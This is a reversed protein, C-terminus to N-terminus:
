QHASSSPRLPQLSFCRINLFDCFQSVVSFIRYLCFSFSSITCISIVIHVIVLPFTMSFMTAAVVALHACVMPTLLLSTDPFPSGTLNAIMLQTVSDFTFLGTCWSLPIIFDQTLRPAILATTVQIAFSILAPMFDSCVLRFSDAITMKNTTRLHHLISLFNAGLAHITPPLSMYFVIMDNTPLKPHMSSAWFGPGYFATLLQLACLTLLGENPGNLERLIMQGSHFEELTAGYFMAHGLFHVLMLSLVPPWLRVSALLTLGSVTVNLADCGHDFLHGLPSSSKTRRAQKGDLNDLVMYALMSLASFLYVPRPVPDELTPAYLILLIHALVPLLFGTLTLVNPAIWLPIFEILRCYLPALLYRYTISRDVGRYQYRGLVSLQADSLRATAM